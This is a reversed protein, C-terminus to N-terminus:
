FHAAAQNFKMAVLRQTEDVVGTSYILVMVDAGEEFV